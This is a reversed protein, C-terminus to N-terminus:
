RSKRKSSNWLLFAAFCNIASFKFNNNVWNDSVLCLKHIKLNEKILFGGFDDNETHCFSCDLLTNNKKGGRFM